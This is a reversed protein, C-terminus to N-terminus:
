GAIRAADILVAEVAALNHRLDHAASAAHAAAGLRGRLGPDLLRHMRAALAGADEPDPLVYGSCGEAVLEAAGDMATTIVPLGAAGAEIVSLSCADWRTPHVLADAAAFLSEMAAVPGLFAVRERVGLKSALGLWGADPVGGAVLLRVEAGAGVLQALARLATDLGKLHLNYAAALFTVAGGLGLRDRAGQRLGALREPAFRATDVGNHIVAIRAEALGHQAILQARVRRSVAIVRRAGRVQRRELRAMQWRRGISVPSVLARLRLLPPHTAVLRAQSLRRSGTQPHFVDGSWGTGTDHVVAADLGAVARAVLRARAVIDWRGRPLPLVHVTVPLAHAAQLFTLVHVDHGRAALFGALSCTWQELGGAQPDFRDVVLAIRM